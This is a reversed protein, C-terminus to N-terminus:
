GRKRRKNRLYYEKFYESRDHTMRYMKQYRKENYIKRGTVIVKYGNKSRNHFTLQHVNGVSTNLFEAVEKSVADSLVPLEYKDDTVVTYLNIKM